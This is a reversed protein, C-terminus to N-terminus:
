FLLRFSPIAIGVLIVVPIVTWLVELLTNHTTRSPVPNARANFRIIVVLLLILVFATIIAIIWLVVDHFWILDDMVPTASQQLGIQWPSPQGLGALAHDAGASVALIVIAAALLRFMVQM